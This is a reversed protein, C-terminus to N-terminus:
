SGRTLVLDDRHIMEARGSYGLIDAISESKRGIIRQADAESYAALGRGLEEGQEDKIIVGDGREFKGEIARIGAPLLSNGRLLANAAGADIILAGLPKLTGAIWRKRATVPNKSAPFWTCAM